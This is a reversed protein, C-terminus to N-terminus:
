YWGERVERWLVGCVRVVAQELPVFGLPKSNEQKKYYLLKSQDVKCWRVKWAKNYEGRKMLYGAKRPKNELKNM